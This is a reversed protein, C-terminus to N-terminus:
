RAEYTSLPPKISNSLDTSQPITLHIFSSRLEYQAVCLIGPMCIAVRDGQHGGLAMSKGVLEGSRMSHM